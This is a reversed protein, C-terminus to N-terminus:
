TQGFLPNGFIDDCMQKVEKREGFSPAPLFPATTSCHESERLANPNGPCVLLHDSGITGLKGILGCKVEIFQFCGMVSRGKAGRNAEPASCNANSRAVVSPFIVMAARKTSESKLQVIM